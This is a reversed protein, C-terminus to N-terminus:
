RVITHWRAYASCVTGIRVVYIGNLHELALFQTATHTHVHALAISVHLGRLCSCLLSPALVFMNHRTPSNNIHWFVLSALAIFLVTAVSCNLRITNVHLNCNDARWAAWGMIIETLLAGDIASSTEISSFICSRNCYLKNCASPVCPFTSSREFFSATM